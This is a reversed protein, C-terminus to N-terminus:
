VPLQGYDEWGYLSGGWGVPATTGRLQAGPGDPSVVLGTAVNKLTDGPQPVFQQFPGNNCAALILGDRLPDSSWGGGPDSVCLGSAAGRPAYEFQYAGSVTGANRVFRTAPDAQTATWGAVIAGPYQHQQYADFGNGFGNVEDGFNTIVPTVTKTAIAKVTLGFSSTESAGLLDTYTAGQSTYLGPHATSGSLVLEGNSTVVGTPTAFTFSGTTPPSIVPNSSDSFQVGGVVYSFTSSNVTDKAVVAATAALSGNTETVPKFTDAVSCGSGYTEDVVIVGGGAPTNDGTTGSFTLSGSTNRVASVGPVTSAASNYDLSDTGTPATTTITGSASAAQALAIPMASPCTNDLSIVVFGTDAYTTTVSASAAGAVGVGLCAFAAASIVAVVASRVRRWPSGSARRAHRGAHAPQYSM